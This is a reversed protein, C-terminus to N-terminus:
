VRIFIRVASRKATVVVQVVAVVQVAAVAASQSMHWLTDREPSILSISYCSVSAMGTKRQVAAGAGAAVHM